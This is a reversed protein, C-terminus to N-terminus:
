NLIVVENADPTIKLYCKVPTTANKGKEKGCAVIYFEKTTGSLPAMSGSVYDTGTPPETTLSYSGNANGTDDPSLYFGNFSESGGGLQSPTRYYRQARASLNLMDAIMADRNTEQAHTLFINSIPVLAVGVIVMVLVFLPLQQQGM